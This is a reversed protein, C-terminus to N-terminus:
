VIQLDYSMDPDEDRQCETAVDNDPQGPEEAEAGDGEERDARVRPGDEARRVGVDDEAALAERQRAPPEVHEEEDPEAGGRDGSDQEPQGHQPQVAVIQGDDGEAEALDSPDEGVIEVLCTNMLGSDNVKRSDIPTSAMTMRPPIPEIGPAITPAVTTVTSLRWTSFPNESQSLSSFFAPTVM